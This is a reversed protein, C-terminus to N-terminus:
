SITDTGLLSGHLPKGYGGEKQSLPNQKVKEIGAIVLKQIFRDLKAFDKEAFPIFIDKWM